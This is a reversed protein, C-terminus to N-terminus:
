KSDEEVSLKLAQGETVHPGADLIITYYQGLDAKQGNYDYYYTREPYWGSTNSLRVRVKVTLKGSKPADLFYGPTLQKRASEGDMHEQFFSLKADPEGNYVDAEFAYALSTSEDDLLKQFEPSPKVVVGISRFTCNVLVNTVQKEEIKFSEKGEFYPKESTKQNEKKFSSSIIDYDGVPLQLPLGEDQLAKFTEYERNEKGTISVYYTNVDQPDFLESSRTTIVPIQIDTKAKPQINLVGKGEPIDLNIEENKSCSSLLLGSCLVSILSIINLKM